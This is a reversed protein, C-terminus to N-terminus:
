RGGQCRVGCTVRACSYFPIRHSPPQKFQIIWPSTRIESQIPVRPPIAMNLAYAHIAM